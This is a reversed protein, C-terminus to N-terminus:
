PVADQGPLRSGPHHDSAAGHPGRPLVGSRQRRAHRVAGPYGSRLWRPTPMGGRCCRHRWSRAGTDSYAFASKRDHFKGTFVPEKRPKGNPGIVSRGQDDTVVEMRTSPARVYRAQAGARVQRRLEQRRDYTAVPEFVGQMMLQIQNLFSYNYFRNYTAGLAGPANLAETLVTRWDFEPAVTSRRTRTGVWQGLLSGSALESM